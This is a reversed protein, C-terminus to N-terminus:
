RTKKTKAGKVESGVLFETDAQGVDTNMTSGIAQIKWITKHGLLPISLRIEGSGDTRVNPNWYLIDATSSPNGGGGGGGGGGGWDSLGTLSSSANTQRSRFYYFSSHIPPTANARLAYIAKDVVGVSLNAAVPSGDANKTTVLLEATDSPSYSAKDLKLGVNLLKHMAPVNLSLGETHYKGSVFFSFVVTISPSLREDVKFSFTNKGKNIHIIQPDYIRGRELTVFADFEAPSDISLNVTDGVKFSNQNSSIKLYTQSISEGWWAPEAPADANTKKLISITKQNQAVNNKKDKASIILQKSEDSLSDAKPLSFKVIGKGNEDTEATGSVIVKEPVKKPENSYVYDILKFEFTTNKVKEGSLYEAYFPAIVEEEPRYNDASPIFFVNYEAAHVITNSGSVIENKNDDITKAIFTIRQSILSKTDAEVELIAKGQDNLTITGSKYEEGYYEDAGGGGCMGGQSTINFNKNFVAKEVEYYTDSYLTYEIDRNTLPKGNFYNGTVTFTLKDPKFYESKSVSSKIEFTPKTYKVVDFSAFGEGYNYNSFPTISARIGISEGSKDKPLVYNTYFSGYDDLTASLDIEDMGQDYGPIKIYVQKGAQPIKYLSDGDTRVIGKIFVTDGPKYIPRDTYLFIKNTEDLNSSVRIDALSNPIEVPIFVVENKYIGIVVDLKAPYELPITNNNSSYTFDKLLSVSNELNYLGFTVGDDIRTGKRVDFANLYVKKDDQRLLVGFSSVVIYYPKTTDGEVYYIGPNLSITNDDPDIKLEKLKDSENHSSSEEKYTGDYRTTRYQKNEVSYTM